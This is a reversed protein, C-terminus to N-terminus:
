HLKQEFHFVYFHNDVIPKSLLNITRVIHFLIRQRPVEKCDLIRRNKEFIKIFLEIIDRRVLFSIRYFDVRHGTQLIRAMKKCELNARAESISIEIKRFIFVTITLTVDTASGTNEPPSPVGIRFLTAGVWWEAFKESVQIFISAINSHPMCGFITPTSGDSYTYFKLLVYEPTHENEQIKWM